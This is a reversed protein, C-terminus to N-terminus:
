VDREPDIDHARKGYKETLSPGQAIDIHSRHPYQAFFRQQLEACHGLYRCTGQAVNAWAQLMALQMEAVAKFPDTM